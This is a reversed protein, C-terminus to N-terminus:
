GYRGGPRDSSDPEDEEPVDEEPMEEDPQAEPKEDGPAEGSDASAEDASPTPPPEVLPAAAETIATAHELARKSQSASFAEGPTGSDLGNPYRTPIYFLDLERGVDVLADLAAVRPKLSEILARVNHGIVVRAGRSYHVAKLAKEAGQQAHFCAPAHFGGDAAYCAWVLEERAAALWRRAEARPDRM